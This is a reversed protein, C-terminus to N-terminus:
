SMDFRRTGGDTDIPCLEASYGHLLGNPVARGYTREVMTNGSTEYSDNLM